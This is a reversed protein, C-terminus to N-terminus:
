LFTRFAYFCVSNRIKLCITCLIIKHIKFNYNGVYMAVRFDYFVFYIKM